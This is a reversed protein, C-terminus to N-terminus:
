ADHRPRSVTDWAPGLDSLRAEICEAELRVSCDGAFLLEIAVDGTPATAARLALLSLVMDGERRDFGSSSVKSVRDFSLAARRREFRRQWWRPQQEWAFRNMALAFRKRAPLFELDAVKVVADQIHASIIELDREDLAALKLMTM